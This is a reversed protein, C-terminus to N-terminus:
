KAGVWVHYIESRSLNGKSDSAEVYYDILVQDYGQIKAWYHDALVNPLIFYNLNGSPPNGAFKPDIVRRNMAVSIWPGVSAGGKYTENDHDTLSNVGTKSVRYKVVVDRVQSVDYVFTWVYFDKSYAPAGNFGVPRYGTTVGWGMGGPNYPWRQPHFITPGTHDDAGDGIARQIYPMAQNLALSQKVEDDLSDGYYLFGSDLGALYFHWAKEVDSNNEGRIQESTECLNAGATVVAWSRWSSSFGNEIDIRTRPDKPDYGPDRPSRAPPYLWKVFQPDGWDGEPNVWGGEELHVVDSEPVPYDQLFQQITTMQHGKQIAQNALGPVSEHYYSNGGGWANDGDHAFLVLSPRAPNSYPAIKQDITDTGMTGYGNQYSLVEDMPVVTIRESKGSAPDVYEVKHPLYAFPAPVKAGRGDISGSWWQGAPVPPNLLDARNPPLTNWTSTSPSPAVEPSLYNSTTRALHGNAVITWEFGQERLIPILTPSFAVEAPFFGKSESAWNALAARRFLKLEKRFASKPILPALAHHYTIGVMDARPHGASTKWHSAERYGNRWESNYGMRSDKGWSNINDMLSGTYSISAGGNPFNLLHRLSDRGGWQYVQIRDDISFVPDYSGIDGTALNNQPHPVSSGPFFGGGSTKIDYSDAAFQVRELTPHKEPWYIPQHLHWHYTLYVNSAAFSQWALWCTSLTLVFYKMYPNKKM